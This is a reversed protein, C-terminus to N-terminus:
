MKLTAPACRTAKFSPAHRVRPKGFSFMQSFLMLLVLLLVRRRLPLRLRCYWLKEGSFTKRTHTGEVRQQRCVFLKSVNFSHALYFNKGLIAM